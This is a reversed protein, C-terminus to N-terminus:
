KGIFLFVLPESRGSSSQRFSLKDRVLMFKRLSLSAITRPDESGTSISVRAQFYESKNSTKGIRVSIDFKVLLKARSNSGCNLIKAM